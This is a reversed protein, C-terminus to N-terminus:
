HHAKESEIEDNYLDALGKRVIEQSNIKSTCVFECLAFDEPSVEYIGLNEQGDIDNTIISKLLYVPLIDMPFVKEYEGTVVFAREEGHANTDLKFKKGPMAWTFFSKSNSFKNLGPAIWGFFESETGEKVVTVQTDYFGLYGDKGVSTGTLVNGSIFRNNDGEVNDASAITAIPAGQITKMYRGKKVQPGTVAVLRTMDYKGTTFLKGITVVDQPYIVWAYEGKNIPDIHHIQVGVNGSPHPGSITHVNVGKAQTFATSKTKDAHNTLHVKGDMLRSLIALGAEFDKENGHIAYDNDPALPSSDFASIFLAKPTKSTRAVNTYPRQRILNWAGSKCLQEKIDEKTFSDPTGSKFSEYRTEKDALIKISTLVRKEGRNVEIVEGSVPSTIMVEPNNKDYMLPTGAKVEDGPQVLVKPKIGFFDSPQILVTQPMEAQILVKDAEGALRIDLGKKIRINKGM